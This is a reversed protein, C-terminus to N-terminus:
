FVRALPGGQRRGWKGEERNMQNFTRCISMSIFEVREMSQVSLGVGRMHDYLEDFGRQGGRSGRISHPVRDGDGQGGGMGVRICGQMRNILVNIGDKLRSHIRDM